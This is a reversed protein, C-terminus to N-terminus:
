AFSRSRACNLTKNIDTCPLQCWLYPASLSLLLFFAISHNVFSFSHSRRRNASHSEMEIRNQTQPETKTETDLETETEYKYKHKAPLCLCAPRMTIESTDANKM